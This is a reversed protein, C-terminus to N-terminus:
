SIRCDACLQITTAAINGGGSKHHGVHINIESAKKRVAYFLKLYFSPYVYKKFANTRKRYVFCTVAASITRAIILYRAETIRATNTLDNMTQQYLNSTKQRRMAKYM